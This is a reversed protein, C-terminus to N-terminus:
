SYKQDSPFIVSEASAIGVLSLVGWNRRWAIVGSGTVEKTEMTPDIDLIKVEVTPALHRVSGSENVVSCFAYDLRGRNEAACKGRGPPREDQDRSHWM